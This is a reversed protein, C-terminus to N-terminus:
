TVPEGLPCPLAQYATIATTLATTAHATSSNYQSLAKDIATKAAAKASKAAAVNEPTKTATVANCAATATTIASIAAADLPYYSCNVTDLDKSANIVEVPINSSDPYQGFSNSRATGAAAIADIALKFDAETQSKTATACSAKATEVSALFAKDANDATVMYIIILVIVIVVAVFVPDM